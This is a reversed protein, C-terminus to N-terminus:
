HEESRMRGYKTEDRVERWRRHYRYQKRRRADRGTAQLHGDDRPCIWVANWAPPVALPRLRGLTGRDRATRGDPHLYRFARGRRERRIGPMDDCVYRLGAARASNYSTGNLHRGAAM